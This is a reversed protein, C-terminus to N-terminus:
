LLISNYLIAIKGPTVNSCAVKGMYTSNEVSTSPVNKDGPNSVVTKEVSDIAGSNLTLRNIAMSPSGVVDTM